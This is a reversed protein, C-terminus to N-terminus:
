AIDDVFSTSLLTGNQDFTQTLEHWDRSDQVDVYVTKKFWSETGDRDWLHEWFDGEDTLGTQKLVQNADNYYLTNQSWWTLDSQDVSETRRSWPQTNELDWSHTWLQGNDRVGSEQYREGNPNYRNTIESWAYNDGSDYTVSFTEGWDFEGSHKYLRGQADLEISNRYWAETGAVDYNHQWTYGNDREGTRLYVQGDDNYHVSQTTWWSINSTDYSTEIKSWTGSNYVDWSHSWTQGNDREGTQQYRNGDADYRFTYSSWWATNDVDWVTKWSFGDPDTGEESLKQWSANYHDTRTSWFEPGNSDPNTLVHDAFEIGISALDLTPLDGGNIVLTDIGSGGDIGAVDDEADYVLIDNGAGGRMVDNGAGGDLYDDGALGELIDDGGNGILTNALENGTLTDNGRSGVANEIWTGYAIAINSTMWAADSFSGPALNVNAGKNFLDPFMGSLDITDNGGADWITLIPHENQTFDFIPSDTNSNYGYVTDETRTTMDAGYMEQIALVDHVMPTQAYHFRGDSAVWDAGTERAHFYSMISYMYSDQAYTAHEAYNLQGGNYNGAHDLGLTHGIEHLLTHFGHQGTVPNQLTANTSNLWVTGGVPGGFPPFAHAYLINTSTNAIKLDSTSPDSTEVFSAAVLDDWLEYAQRAQQQQFSNLPSFGDAEGLPYFSGNTPIAYEVVSDFVQAGTRLQEVIQSTSWIPKGSEGFEVGSQTQEYREWDEAANQLCIHCM